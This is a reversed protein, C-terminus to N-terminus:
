GPAPDSRSTSSPAAGERVGSTPCPGRRLARGPRFHGAPLGVRGGAALAPTRACDGSRLFFRGPLPLLRRRKRFAPPGLGRGLFARRGACQKAFRSSLGRGVPPRQGPAPPRARVGQSVGRFSSKVQRLFFLRLLGYPPLRLWGCWLVGDGIFHVGGPLHPGAQRPLGSAPIPGGKPGRDVPTESLCRRARRFAESAGRIRTRSCYLRLWTMGPSRPPRDVTKPPEPPVKEGHIPPPTGEPGPALRPRSDKRGM